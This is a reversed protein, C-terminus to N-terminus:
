RYRAILIITSKNNLTASGSSNALLIKNETDLQYSAENAGGSAYAALKWWRTASFEVKGALLVTNDITFGSPLNIYKNNGNTPFTTSIKAITSFDELYYDKIAAIDIVNTAIDATNTTVDAELSTIDTDNNDINTLNSNIKSLLVRTGKDQRYDKKELDGIKVLLENINEKDQRSLGNTNM